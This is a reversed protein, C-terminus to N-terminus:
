LHFAKLVGTIYFNSCPNHPKLPADLLDVIRSLHDAPHFFFLLVTKKRLQLLIFVPGNASQQRLSISFSLFLPPLQLFFGCISFVLSGLSLTQSVASQSKKNKQLSSKSLSVNYLRQQDSLVKRECKAGSLTWDNRKEIMEDWQNWKKVASSSTWPRLRLM